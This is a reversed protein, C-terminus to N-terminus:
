GNVEVEIVKKASLADMDLMKAKGILGLIQILKHVVSDRLLHAIFIVSFLPLPNINFASSCLLFSVFLCNNRNAFRNIYEFIEILLFFRKAELLLSEPNTTDAGYYSTGESYVPFWVIHWKRLHCTSQSTFYYLIFHFLKFFSTVKVFAHFYLSM